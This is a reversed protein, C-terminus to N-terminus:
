DEEVEEVETPEEICVAIYQKAESGELDKALDTCVLLTEEKETLQVEEAEQQAYATISISAIAVLTLLTTITNKM